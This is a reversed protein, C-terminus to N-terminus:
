SPDGLQPENNLRIMYEPLLSTALMVANINEHDTWTRQNQNQPDLWTEEIFDALPFFGKLKDATAASLFEANAPIIAMGRLGISLGLERFALRQSAPAQLQGSAVFRAIGTCAAELLESELRSLTRVDHPARLQAIRCIDFLLGGIGLPDDTYWDKGRCLSKLSEIEARLQCTTDSSDSASRLEEIESFTVLGDLPDHHGISFVAPYSLDVNMKWYLGLLTGTSSRMSFAAFARQGLECSWRLYTEDRTAVSVQRLAHMWKTLYHFYQGDRDWEKNPDTPENAKRDPLPKGIRLGGATPHQKAEAEGFGSLWGSLSDDPRHQGLVDHVQDVLALALTLCRAEGNARYLSLYNCVAFADTWLYREPHASAPALGTKEAFRLM